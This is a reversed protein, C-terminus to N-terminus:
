YKLPALKPYKTDDRTENFINVEKNFLDINIKTEETLGNEKLSDQLDKYQLFYGNYFTNEKSLTDIQTDNLSISLFFALILCLFLNFSKLLFNSIKVTLIMIISIITVTICIYIILLTNTM